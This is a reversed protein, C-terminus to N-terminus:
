LRSVRHVMYTIPPDSFNLWPVTTALETFPQPALTYGLFHMRTKAYPSHCRLTKVQVMVLRSSRVPSKSHGPKYPQSIPMGLSNSCILFAKERTQKRQDMSLLGSLWSDM